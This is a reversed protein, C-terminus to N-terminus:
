AVVADVGPEPEPEAAEGLAAVALAAQMTPLLALAGAGEGLGLGVSVAPTLGLRDAAVRVAPDAADDTLLCWLRVPVAYDRAALAAAVGVPGDVLVPTRRAAAGLLIGAATALAPGGVAALMTPGDRLRQKLRVMADRIAVCRRKWAEDDILGGPAWVRPLLAAVEGRTIGAILAAAAADLGPGGAALVILDDGRDAAAQARRWGRRLAAATEAEGLADGDEIAGGAGADLVEITTDPVASALRALVSGDATAPTAWDPVTGGAGLAGEHSGTVAIVRIAGFPHPGAPGQAGAAFSALAALDGLGRGAVPLRCAREGAASIADTDPLPLVMGVRIEDEDGAGSDGTDFDAAVPLVPVAAARAAPTVALETVADTEPRHRPSGPPRLWVPQGAVVLAVADAVAALQTNASGTAEARRRAEPTDPGFGFGVEPSVLVIRAATAAVAAVLGAAAEEHDHTAIWEGLDDVLLTDAATADKIMSELTASEALDAATLRRAGAGALLAAFESRGSHPGGLVLVIQPRQPM